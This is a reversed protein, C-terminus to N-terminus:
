LTRASRTDRCAAWKLNIAINIASELHQFPIRFNPIDTITISYQKKQTALISDLVVQEFKNIYVALFVIKIVNLLQSIVGFIQRFIMSFPSSYEVDIATDTQDGYPHTRFQILLLM